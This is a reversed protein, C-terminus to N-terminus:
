QARAIAAQIERELDAPSLEVEGLRRSWAIRGGRNLVYVASPWGAYASEVSRDLGDVAMPFPIELKRACVAANGAKQELTKAGQLSIRERENVTSQWTDGTHAENVYVMVFQARGRYRAYLAKLAPADFRFKPCTYSGFILVVPQEHVLAALHVITSSGRLPLTFDPAKTGAPLLDGEAHVKGSELLKQAIARERQAEQAMQLQDYARALNAHADPVDAREAIAGELMRRAREPQGDALYAAGLDFKVEVSGPRVNGAREFYPVAEAAHGRRALIRGLGINSEYDNPNASLESRFAADAGDADGTLLLAQGYYSHVSPLGPNLEIAKALERIAQPYDQKVFAATGLLFRAEASDSDRLIGDVLAQGDSVRGSRILATGLMYSFAKDNGHAAALPSLLDIVKQIEGMQLDSDALLLTVQLDGPEQAHLSGLEQAAKPIEGSKYYALALNRRVAGNSPAIRLAEQYEGIADAYRGLGALAAGFDSRLEAVGPHQQVCARYAPIAADLKGARHWEAAQRCAQSPDSQALAFSALLVPLFALAKYRAGSM